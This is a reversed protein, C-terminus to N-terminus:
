MGPVWAVCVSVGMERVERDKLQEGVMRHSVFFNDMYVGPGFLM